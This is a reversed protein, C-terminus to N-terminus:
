RLQFLQGTSRVEGARRARLWRLDAVEPLAFTPHAEVGEGGLRRTRLAACLVRRGRAEVAAGLM